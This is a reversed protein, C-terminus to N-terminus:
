DFLSYTVTYTYPKSYQGRLYDSCYTGTGYSKADNDYAPVDYGGNTLVSKYSATLKCGGSNSYGYSISFNDSILRQSLDARITKGPPIQSPFQYGDTGSATRILPQSNSGNSIIVTKALGPLPLGAAVIFLALSLYKIDM